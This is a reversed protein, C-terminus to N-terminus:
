LRGSLLAADPRSECMRGRAGYTNSRRPALQGHLFSLLAQSQDMLALSLETNHSAQRACQQELADILHYLKKVAEGDEEPLMGAYNLLTAGELSQKLAVREDAVQRLLEHISFEVATVADTDRAKLFEFEEELLRQLLELGRFQRTLNGHIQAFM